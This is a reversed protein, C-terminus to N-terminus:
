KNKIKLFKSTVRIFVDRNLMMRPIINKLKIDQLVSLLSIACSLGLITKIM